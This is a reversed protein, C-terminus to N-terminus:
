FSHNPIQAAMEACVVIQPESRNNSQSVEEDRLVFEISRCGDLLFEQFALDLAQAAIMGLRESRADM